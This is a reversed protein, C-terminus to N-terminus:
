ATHLSTQNTQGQRQLEDERYRNTLDLLM